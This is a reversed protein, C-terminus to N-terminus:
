QEGFQSELFLILFSIWVGVVDFGVTLGPVNALALQTHADLVRFDNGELNLRTLNPLFEFVDKNLSHIQNYALNLDEIGIPQSRSDKIPGRFKDSTVEESVLLNYSLDM